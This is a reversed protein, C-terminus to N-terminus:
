GAHYQHWRRWRRRRRQQDSRVYAHNCGSRRRQRSRHRPERCGHLGSGRSEHAVLHQRRGPRGEARSARRTRYRGGRRQDWKNWRALRVTRVPRGRRALPVRERRRGRVGAAGAQGQQDWSIQAELSTCHSTPNSSPLSPDILRITGANKLVCATYVKNVDPIMSFAVGGAVVLGAVIPGRSGGGSRGFWATM